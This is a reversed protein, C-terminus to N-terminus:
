NKMLWDKCFIVDFEPMPLVILVVYVLHGHLELDIDRVVSTASLQEGSPFIVSFNVDLGISQVNLYNASTKSIFSNIAGSDLMAKTTLRNVFINGTLLTMDPNAEEAHIAFAKEQYTQSWQPWDKLM